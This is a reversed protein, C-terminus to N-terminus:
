VESSRVNNVSGMLDPLDVWFVNQSEADNLPVGNITVNIRTQDSGRLRMSTYGIGAGADSTVVMSPSWQLLFPVDQGLNEKHLAKKNLNSKTFPGNDAVRNAQIEIQDLNYIEGQLIINFVKNSNILVKQQFTVYGIFIIKFNYEGFPIDKIIYNGREDSSAAFSTNELFVTAFTLMEGKENKVSGTLSFQSKLSFFSFLLVFLTLYSKM